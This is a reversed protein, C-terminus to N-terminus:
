LLKRSILNYATVTRSVFHCAILLLKPVVNRFWPRWVVAWPGFRAWSAMEEPGRPRKTM